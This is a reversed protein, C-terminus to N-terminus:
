FIEYRANVQESNLKYLFINRVSILWVFIKTIMLLLFILRNKEIIKIQRNSLNLTLQSWFDNKVSNIKRLNSFHIHITLCPWVSMTKSTMWCELDSLLSIEFDDQSIWFTRLFRRSRNPDFHSMRFLFQVKKSTRFIEISNFRFNTLYRTRFIWALSRFDM